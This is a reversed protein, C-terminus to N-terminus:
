PLSVYLTTSDPFFVLCCNKKKVKLVAKSLDGNPDSIQECTHFLCGWLSFLTCTSAGAVM